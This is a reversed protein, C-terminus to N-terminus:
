WGAKSRILRVRDSKDQVLEIIELEEKSAASGHIAKYATGLKEAIESVKTGFESGDEQLLSVVEKGVDRGNNEFRYGKLDSDSQIKRLCEPCRWDNRTGEIAELRTGEWDCDPNTCKRIKESM